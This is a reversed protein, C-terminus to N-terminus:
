KLDKALIPCVGVKKCVKAAALNALKSISLLSWQQVFGLTAVSVVTDGAGSVDATKIAKSPVIYSDGNKEYVFVGLAGLTLVLNDFRNRRKLEEAAKRLSNINKPDIKMSLADSLEKLNPKFLDIQQYEFFNYEKPDVVVPIGLKTTILLVQKIIKKTLLGKNYDQLIVAKFEGSRILKDIDALIVAEQEKTVDDDTERDYRVVQRDDDFIRTKVATIRNPLKFISKISINNEKLTSLMKKGHEDEGIVSVLTAKAGLGLLNLVVNAAGGLRYEEEEIDVIPVPAETSIRNIQGYLYHDLMIDGIVLINENSFDFSQPM